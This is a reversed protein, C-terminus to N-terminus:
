WEECDNLSVHITPSEHSDPSVHILLYQGDLYVKITTSYEPNPRVTVTPHTDDLGPVVELAYKDMSVETILENMSIAERVGM